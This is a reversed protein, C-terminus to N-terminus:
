AKCRPSHASVAELLCGCDDCLDAAPRGYARWCSSRYDIWNRGLVLSIPTGFSYVVGQTGRDPNRSVSRGTTGALLVGAGDFV